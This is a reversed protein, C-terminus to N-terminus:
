RYAQEDKKEEQLQASKARNFVMILLITLVVPHLECPFQDSTDVNQDKGITVLDTQKRSVIRQTGVLVILCPM